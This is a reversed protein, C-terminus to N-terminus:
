RQANMGRIAGREANLVDYVGLYARDMMTKVVYGVILNKEGTCLSNEKEKLTVQDSGKSIGV